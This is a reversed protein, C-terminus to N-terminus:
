VKIIQGIAEHLQVSSEGTKNGQDLKGRIGAVGANLLTSRGFALSIPITRTGLLTVPLNVLAPFLGFNISLSHLIM